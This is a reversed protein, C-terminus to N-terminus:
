NFIALTKHQLMQTRETTFSSRRTALFDIKCNCSCFLYLHHTLARPHAPAGLTGACHRGRPRPILWGPSAAPAGTDGQQAWGPLPHQEPRPTQVWLLEASWAGRASGLAKTVRLMVALHVQPQPAAGVGVGLLDGSM